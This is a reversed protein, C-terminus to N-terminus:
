VLDVVHHRRKVQVFAAAVAVIGNGVSGELEGAPM